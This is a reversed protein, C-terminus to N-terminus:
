IFQGVNYIQAFAISKVATGLGPIQVKANTGM